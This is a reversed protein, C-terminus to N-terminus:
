CVLFLLLYLGLGIFGQEGIVEFYISHIARHVAGPPGYKNWMSDSAWVDFGGARLPRALAVNTAFKWSQIRGEASESQQYHSISHMRGVWKQPMFTLLVPILVALAVLLGLKRRSKFVLILTVVGLALFGGRSYTGLVSLATLAMLIWLGSRIWKSTAQLQLYRMLPLTMCMVLAFDNNDQFFSGAP